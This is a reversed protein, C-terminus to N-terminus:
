RSTWLSLRDNDRMGDLSHMKVESHVLAATIGACVDREIAGNDRHCNRANLTYGTPIMGPTHQIGGKSPVTWLAGGGYTMWTLGCDFREGARATMFRHCQVAVRVPRNSLPVFALPPMLHQENMDPEMLSGDLVGGPTNLM